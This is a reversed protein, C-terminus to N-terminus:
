CWSSHGTERCMAMNVASVHVAAHSSCRFGLSEFADLAIDEVSTEAVFRLQSALLPIGM